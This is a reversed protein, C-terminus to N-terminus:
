RREITWAQRGWDYTIWPRLEYLRLRTIWRPIRRPACMRTAIRIRAMIESPPTGGSKAFVSRAEDLYQSFAVSTKQAAHRRYCGLPVDVAYLEAHAFFRAWLEFDGASKLSADLHGGAREWLSRRWFTSEQQIYGTTTWGAAAFNEGRLFGQRSFGNIRNVKITAGDEDIAAPLATSIWEVEPHAAFIAGVTRLTGPFWEDDANLWAMIEGRTLAFGKNIADYMGGDPSSVIQAFHKRYQEVIALTGDTSAGDILVHELAPYRQAQVSQITRELFRVMNFCPTVVSIHPLTVSM